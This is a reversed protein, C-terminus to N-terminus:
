CIAIGIAGMYAGYGFLVAAAGGTAMLGLAGIGVSVGYFTWKCITDAEIGAQVKSMQDLDLTNM